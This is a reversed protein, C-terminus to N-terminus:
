RIPAQEEERGRPVHRPPGAVEHARREQGPAKVAALDDGGGGELHREGIGSVPRRPAEIDLRGRGGVRRERRAPIEGPQQTLPLDGHHLRGAPVGAPAAFRRVTPRRQGCLRAREAPASRDRRRVEHGTLVARARQRPPGRPRPQQLASLAPDEGGELVGKGLRCEVGAAGNERQHLRAPPDEDSALLGRPPETGRPGQLQRLRHLERLEPAPLLQQEGLCLTRM